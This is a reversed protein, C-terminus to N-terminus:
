FAFTLLHSLLYICHKDQFFKYVAQFDGHENGGPLWELSGWGTRRPGGDGWCGFMCQTVHKQRGKQLTPEKLTLGHSSTYCVIQSSYYSYYDM